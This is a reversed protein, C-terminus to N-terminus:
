MKELAVLPIHLSRSASIPLVEKGVSINYQFWIFFLNVKFVFRSVFLTFVCILYNAKSLVSLAGISMQKM